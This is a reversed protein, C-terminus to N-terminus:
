AVAAVGRAFLPLCNGVTGSRGPRRHLPDQRDLVHDEPHPMLGLVRGTADSVGAIDGASGNPNAPYAEGAAAGAGDGYRLAIRGADTVADLDSSIFRGEGHAIPCRLPETLGDTWVSTATPVLEVWRCEFRGSTNHGLTAKVGDLGPLIGHRVLAQFGNCIGIVPMGADVATHLTEGFERQLDLGFLRGAGLADGYSFGGPVALIQHDGLRVEGARLATLPAVTTDAGALEFARALDGDRNTGPAVPILVSPKM